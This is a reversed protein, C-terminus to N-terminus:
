AQPGAAAPSSKQGIFSHKVIDAYTRSTKPESEPMPPVVMDDGPQPRRQNLPPPPPTDVSNHLDDTSSNPISRGNSSNCSSLPPSSSHARSGGPRPLPSPSGVLQVEDVDEDDSDSYSFTSVSAEPLPPEPMVPISAQAVRDEDGNKPKAVLKTAM